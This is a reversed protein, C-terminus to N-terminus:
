YNQCWPKNSWSDGGQQVITGEATIFYQSNKSLASDENTNYVGVLKAGGSLQGAIGGTNDKGSVQGRNFSAYASGLDGIVTNAGTILGVLGGTNKEGFVNGGNSINAAAADNSLQGVIGGVNTTVNGSGDDTRGSVVATNSSNNIKSAGDALGVLGGINVAAGTGVGVVQGKVDDVKGAIGAGENYSWNLSAGNTLHGAIGGVNNKGTIQAQQLRVRILSGGSVVGFLGVNEEDSRDIKLNSITHVADGGFGDFSGTFAGKDLSGGIASFGKGDNWNEAHIAQLTKEVQTVTGYDQNDPTIDIKSLKGTLLEGADGYAQKYLYIHGTDTSTEIYNATDGAADLDRGLAYKGALNGTTNEGQDTKEDIDQLQAINNILIRANADATGTVKATATTHGGQAQTTVHTSTVSDTTNNMLAAFNQRDNKYDKKIYHVKNDQTTAADAVREPNYFLHAETTTIQKAGDVKITGYDDSNADSRIIVQGYAENANGGLEFAEEGAIRDGTLTTKDVATLVSDNLTVDGNAVLRIKNANEALGVAYDTIKM